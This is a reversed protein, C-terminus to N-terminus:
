NDRAPVSTIAAAAIISSTANKSASASIVGGYGTGDSSMNIITNKLPTTKRSSGTKERQPINKV